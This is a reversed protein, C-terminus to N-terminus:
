SQGNKDMDARILAKIYGQKNSQAQVHNYLDAETTMVFHITMNKSNKRNYRQQPTLGDDIKQRAM